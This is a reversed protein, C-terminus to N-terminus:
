FIFCFLNIKYPYIKRYLVSALVWILKLNHGQWHQAGGELLTLVCMINMQASDGLNKKNIINRCHFVIRLFVRQQKCLSLRSHKWWLVLGEM